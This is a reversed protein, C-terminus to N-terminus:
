HIIRVVLETFSLFEFLADLTNGKIVIMHGGVKDEDDEYKFSLGIRSSVLSILGEDEILTYDRVTVENTKLILNCRM